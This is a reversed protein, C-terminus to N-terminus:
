LQEGPGILHFAAVRRGVDLLDLRVDKLVVEALAPVGHLLRIVPDGDRRHGGRRGRKLHADDYGSCTLLPQALPLSLLHRVNLAPMRALSLLRHWILPDRQRSAAVWTSWMWGKASPPSFYSGALQRAAHPGHLRSLRTIGM